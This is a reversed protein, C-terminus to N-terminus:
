IKNEKIWELGKRLLAFSLNVRKDFDSNGTNANKTFSLILEANKRATLGEVEEDIEARYEEMEPGDSPFFVSLIEEGKKIACYLGGSKSIAPALSGELGRKMVMVAKFGSMFGLDAMKEMYTIHFVSTLLIEAKLPNLVKELTALYPRKMIIRRREVWNELVPCFDKQDLFFGYSSDFNIESGKLSPIGLEKYVDYANLTYKPGSTRGGIAVAKYDEKELFSAILPTIMYSHEVGDFPEALQVLGSQTEPNLFDTNIQKLLSVYLGKYEEDSEYRIRLISVAMGRFFDSGETHYLFDGLIEAEKETLTEKKLLKVGLYVLDGSVDSCCEGLLIAPEILSGNGSYKELEFYYPEIEKMLIAGFLAGSLIPPVDGELLEATINKILDEPLKKSGHKGIGILKVGEKVAAFKETIEM